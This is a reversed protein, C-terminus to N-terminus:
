GGEFRYWMLILFDLASCLIVGASFAIQCLPPSYPLSEPEENMIAPSSRPVAVM